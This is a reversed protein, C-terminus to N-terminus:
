SGSGDIRWLVGQSPQGHIARSGSPETTSIVGSFRCAGCIFWSNKKSGREPSTGAELPM